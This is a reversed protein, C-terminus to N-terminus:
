PREPPFVSAGASSPRAAALARHDLHTENIELWVCCSPPRPSMPAPRSPKSSRPACNGRQTDLYDTLGRAAKRSPSTLAVAPGNPPRCSSTPWAPPLPRSCAAAMRRAPPKARALGSAPPTPQQEAATYDTESPAIDGRYDFNFCRFWVSLGSSTNFGDPPYHEYQM